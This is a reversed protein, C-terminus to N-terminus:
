KIWTAGWNVERPECPQTYGTESGSGSLFDPLAPFRVRSRQIQLWFSQGSSWLPPRHREDVSSYQPLMLCADYEYSEIKETLGHHLRRVCRGSHQLVDVVVRQSTNYSLGLDSGVLELDRKQWTSHSGWRQLSSNQRRSYEDDVEVTIREKGSTFTHWWKIVRQRSM